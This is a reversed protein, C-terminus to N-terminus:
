QVDRHETQSNLKKVTSVALRAEETSIPFPKNHMLCDAFAALEEEYPDKRLNPFEDSVPIDIRKEGSYKLICGQRCNITNWELVGEEFIIQYAATFPYGKPMLHNAVIDACAQSPYSLVSRVRSTGPSKGSSTEYANFSDPVGFFWNALDIDHISLDLITGGSAKKNRLWNNWSWGPNESERNFSATLPSGLEGSFIINKAYLYQPMFRCTHAVMLRRKNQQEAKIMADIDDLEVAFPKEVIVDCGNSLANIVAERHMNSPLCIDVFDPKQSAFCADLSEFCRCNGLAALAKGKSTDQDVVGMLTVSDINLYCEIHKKGMYGAGVVVVSLQKKIM